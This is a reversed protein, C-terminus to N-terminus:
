IGSHLPGATHGRVFECVFPIDVCLGVGLCYTWACVWVWIFCHIPVTNVLHIWAAPDKKVLHCTGRTLFVRRNTCVPINMVMNVIGWLKDVDQALYNWDVGKWVIEEVDM